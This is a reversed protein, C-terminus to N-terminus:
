AKIQLINIYTHQIIYAQKNLACGFFLKASATQTSIVILFNDYNQLAMLSQFAEGIFWTAVIQSFNYTSYICYMQHVNLKIHHLNTPLKLKTVLAIWIM